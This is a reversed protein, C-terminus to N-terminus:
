GAPKALDAAGGLVAICKLEIAIPTPLRAVEVTTRCPPNEAFHAAWVRNYTAFDRQMDTLYVTVDVLDQWRAGAAALVERVNAFVAECQVAIDHDIVEGKANMTTGPIAKQGKVRPGIGSLFLLQGVQRAHPYLGVPEAARPSHIEITM